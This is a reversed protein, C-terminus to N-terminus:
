RLLVDSISENIELVKIREFRFLLVVRWFYTRGGPRGKSIFCSETSSFCICPFESALGFFQTDNHTVDTKHCTQYYVYIINSFYYHNLNEPFLLLVCPTGCDCVVALGGVGLPLSFPCFSVRAFCVFARSTCLGAGEEWISTIMISFPIYFCFSLSCPLVKFCSAGRLIFWLIVCFLFLM